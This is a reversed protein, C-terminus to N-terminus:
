ASECNEFIQWTPVHWVLMVISVRALLFNMPATLSREEGCFRKKSGPVIM